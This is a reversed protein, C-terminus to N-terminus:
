EFRTSQWSKPVKGTCTIKEVKQTIKVMYTCSKKKLETSYHAHGWVELVLREFTTMRVETVYIVRSSKDTYTNIILNIFIDYTLLFLM